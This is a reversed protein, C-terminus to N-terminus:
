PERFVGDSEHTAILAGLEDFVRVVVTHSRSYFSQTVLRKMPSAIGFDVSHCRKV